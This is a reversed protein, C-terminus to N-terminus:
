KVFYEPYAKLLESKEVRHRTLHRTMLMEALEADRREIAYLINEHDEVTKDPKVTKAFSGQSPRLSGDSFSYIEYTRAKDVSHFLLKHFENDLEFLREANEKKLINDEM